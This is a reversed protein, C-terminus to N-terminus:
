AAALRRGQAHDGSELVDRFALQEDVPLEHVVHRGLVAVDRHHELVVGQVRVHGDVVVHSESELDALKGLRLDVDADLLRGADEVDLLEEVALGLLKRAALSLAYGHAAGDDALGLNEEEVLRQGVEVGLEADLHAGLQDLEVVVQLSGHDVDRV